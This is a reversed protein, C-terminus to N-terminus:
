KNERNVYPRNVGDLYVENGDFYAVADFEPEFGAFQFCENDKNWVLYCGQSCFVRDNNQLYEKDM